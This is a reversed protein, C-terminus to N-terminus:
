TFCMKYQLGEFLFCSIHGSGAADWVGKLELGVSFMSVLCWIALDCLKIATCRNESCCNMWSHKYSYIFNNTKCGCGWVCQLLCPDKWCPTNEERLCGHEKVLHAEVGLEECISEGVSFSFSVASLIVPSPTSKSLHSQFLFLFFPLAVNPVSNNLIATPSLSLM